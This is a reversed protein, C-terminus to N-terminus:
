RSDLAMGIRQIANQCIEIGHEKVKAIELGSDSIRLCFEEALSQVNKAADIILLYNGEYKFLRNEATIGSKFLRYCLGMLAEGCPLDAMVYKKQGRKKVAKFRKGAGKINETNANSAPIFFIECGGNFIPYIEILFKSADTPIKSVLVASRLLNKLHSKAEPSNEDFLVSDIHYHVTEAESLVVRLTGNENTVTM